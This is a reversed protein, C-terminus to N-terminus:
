RKKNVSPVRGHPILKLLFSLDLILIFAKSKHPISAIPSMKMQTPINDKIEDYLVLCAWNSALKGKSEAYFHAIAKDALDSVHPGM